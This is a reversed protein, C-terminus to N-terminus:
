AFHASLWTIAPLMAVASAACASTSAPASATLTPMPGPEIQVVRMTAPTPRVASRRPQKRRAPAARRPRQRNDGIAADAEGPVDGLRDRRARMRDHDAAQEGAGLFGGTFDLQVLASGVLGIAAHTREARHAFAV